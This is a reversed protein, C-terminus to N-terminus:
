FPNEIERIDDPYICSVQVGRVVVAGLARLAESELCNNAKSRDDTGEVYEECCDLVM